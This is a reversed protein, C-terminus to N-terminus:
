KGARRWNLTFNRVVRSRNSRQACTPVPHLAAWCTQPITCPLRYTRRPLLPCPAM